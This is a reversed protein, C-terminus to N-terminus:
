LDVYGEGYNVGGDKIIIIDGCLKSDNPNQVKNKYCLDKVPAASCASLALIGAMLMITKM